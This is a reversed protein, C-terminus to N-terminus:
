DEKFRRLREMVNNEGEGFYAYLTRYEQYLRAYVSVHDPDPRFIKLVPSKMAEAADSVREYGGAAKGAAAAAFVASGLAPGVETDLVEIPLDLIDAYLQMIFPNKRSIGGSVSFRRVPVGHERFNDLIVRCGFATSEALARYVDESRTDPTLGLILGSLEYNCLTSRNGNLWDLALLGTQGPQKREALSSLYAHINQHNKEAELFVHEPVMHDVFWGYLDGVSSQGAELGCFGPLIGDQVAGCIGPVDPGAAGAERGLMMICASTGIIMLVHGEETIGAAPVCVHADVLGAAVAIGPNLGLVAAAADTLTGATKSVPVVSSPLKESVPSFPCFGANRFLKEPPYGGEPSYFAKYGAACGNRTKNGTLLFVLWDAAEIYEYMEEYLGPAREYVEWLKPYLSEASISGGFRKLLEPCVDKAASTLRRAQEKAGHHKWLKLYAQPERRYKEKRCLPQWDADAPFASCATADLGIGIVDDKHVGSMSMVERVSRKLVERYDDPDQLAYDLPLPTGDPLTETMIGHPYDFSASAAVKGTSVDALVARGSLSGFDLGITYRGM